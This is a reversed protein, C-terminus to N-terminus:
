KSAPTSSSTLEPFNEVPIRAESQIQEETLEVEYSRGNYDVRYNSNVVISGELDYVARKTAYPLRFEFNGLTDSLTRWTIISPQKAYPSSLSLYAVVPAQPQNTKGVLLAGPVIEFVRVEPSLHPNVLLGRSTPCVTNKARFLPGLAEAEEPSVEMAMFSFSKLDDTLRQARVVRQSSEFVLRFHGMGRALGDFLQVIFLSQLNENYVPLNFTQGEWAIDAGAKMLEAPNRGTLSYDTPLKEELNRAPIVIFRLKNRKMWRYVRPPKETYFLQAQYTSHTQSFAVGTKTTYALLNGLDWPAFIGYDESGNKKVEALFRSAQAIGNSNVVMERATAASVWPHAQNPLPLLSIAAVFLLVFPTWTRWSLRSLCYAGTGAIILPAYYNFDLTFVWFVTIGLGYVLPVIYGKLRGERWILVPALLLFLPTLGYWSFLLTPSVAVHESISSARRSFFVILEGWLDPSFSIGLVVASLLLPAALLRKKLPLKQAAWILLPFGVVLAAGGLLYVQLAKSWIILGPAIRSVAVPVVMLLLGAIAGKKILEVRAKPHHDVLALAFFCAGTFFLHLPSGAWSFFFGLLVLVPAVISRVPVEDSLSWTLSVLLLTQLFVEWGHHDGNGVSAVQSLPGPFSLALVLFILGCWPTERRALAAALILASIGTLLPAIWTLIQRPSLLGLSLKSFTAILIDYGGQNMGIEKHPFASMRDVRSIIPYNNLVEESHRLHYYSDAGSLRPHEPDSYLLPYIAYSRASLWLVLFFFGVGLYVSKGTPLEPWKASM